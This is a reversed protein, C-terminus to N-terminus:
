KDFQIFVKSSIRGCSAIDPATNMRDIPSFYKAGVTIEIIGHIHNPM